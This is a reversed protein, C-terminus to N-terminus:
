WMFRLGLFSVKMAAILVILGWANNSKEVTWNLMREWLIFEREVGVFWDSGLLFFLLDKILLRLFLELIIKNFDLIPEM